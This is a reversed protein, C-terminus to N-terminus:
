TLTVNSRRPYDTDLFATIVVIFYNDKEFLNLCDPSESYYKQLLLRINMVHIKVLNSEM